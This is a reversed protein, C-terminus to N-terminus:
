TIIIKGKNRQLLHLLYDLNDAEMLALLVQITMMMLLTGMIMLHALAQDKMELVKVSKIKLNVM